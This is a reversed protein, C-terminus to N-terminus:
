ELPQRELPQRERPAGTQYRSALWDNVALVGIMTVVYAFFAVLAGVGGKLERVGNARAIGFTLISYSFYITVGATLAAIWRLYRPM